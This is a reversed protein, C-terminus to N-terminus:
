KTLLKFEIRRNKQKGAPTANDAIPEDPGAGRTEIRDADIGKIVLYAKVSEAREASLRMNLDRSGDTDTHGSIAVRLSPHERLVATAQDLTTRSSPRITAKGTDFQIGEIVGTFRKVSDPVEDPCGDDDEFGNATEPENPCKDAKGKIGDKDPDEDPCGDPPLGAVDPCHDKSDDIGDGDTDDVPCGSPEPGAEDPCRDKGDAIGDGDRDSVPCGDPAVGPEDPCRDEGDEFGDGDRDKPGEPRSTRGFTGTLGLQIEPHHTLTDPKANHKQTLNDRVDLRVSLMDNAPIKVGAGFHFAPDGDKGLVDSHMALRGFGGLLFPTVSWFPLQGVLHGRGALMTASEDEMSTTGAAGEIEAGLFSVPYYGVRLGLEPALSGYTTHPKTENMINHDKSPFLAGVFVGVELLGGEPRYRTMYDGGGEASSTGTLGDSLSASASASADDQAFSVNAFLIAVFGSIWALRHTKM